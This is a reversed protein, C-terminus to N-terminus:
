SKVSMRCSSGCHFKSPSFSLDASENLPASIKHKETRSVHKEQAAM